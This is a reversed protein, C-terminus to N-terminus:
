LVSKLLITTLDEDRYHLTVGLKYFPRGFADEVGGNIELLNWVTWGSRLDVQMPNLEVRYADLLLKFQDEWLRLDLGAVFYEDRILGGRIFFPSNFIRWALQADFTTKETENGYLESVKQIGVTYYRQLSPWIDLHAHGGAVSGSYKNLGFNLDFRLKDIKEQYEGVRKVVRSVTKVTEEVTQRTEPSFVKQGAQKLDEVVGRMEKLLSVGEDYLEPSRAVKQFTGDPDNLSEAFRRIETVADRLAPYLAPDRVLRGLTGQGGAVQATIEELSRLVGGASALLGTLDDKFNQPPVGAIESGDAAPAGKGPTVEVYMDGLMGMGQIRAESDKRIFEKIKHELVLVVKLRPEGGRGAFEVSRVSGVEVGSFWVPSSARLGAVDSFYAVLRFKRSFLSVGKTPFILALLVLSVAVAVLAGVKIQMAPINRTTRM